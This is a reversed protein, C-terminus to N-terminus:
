NSFYGAAGALGLVILAVLLYVLWSRKRPEPETVDATNTDVSIATPADHVREPDFISDARAVVTPDFALPAFTDTETSAASIPTGQADIRPLSDCSPTYFATQAVLLGEDTPVKDLTVDSTDTGLLAPSSAAHPHSAGLPSPGGQPPALQPEDRQVFHMTRADEQDRAAIEDLEPDIGEPPSPIELSTVEGSDLSRARHIVTETESPHATIPSLVNEPLEFTKSSALGQQLTQAQQSAHQAQQHPDTTMATDRASPPEDISVEDTSFDEASIAANSLLDTTERRLGTAPASRNTAGHPQEGSDIGGQLRRAVSEIEFEDALFPDLDSEPENKKWGARTQSPASESARVFGTRASESARVFGTRPDSIAAPRGAPTFASNAKPPRKQSRHKDARQPTLARREASLESAFHREVLEALKTPSVLMRQDMQFELLDDLMDSVRAYRDEPRWATARRYIRALGAPYSPDIEQPQKLLGHAAAELLQADTGDGFASRALTIEFLLLGLAYIDCRQDVPLGRAQEPSLYGFKGKLVGARTAQRSAQHAKAIGFDAIKVAGATSILINAPNIDRHVLRLPEGDPGTARHAFDLGECVNCLVHLALPLELPKRHRDLLEGLDKGPVYEMAMFLVGSEEGLEYLHVINSHDLLGALRGEDLFMEVFDQDIALEERLCKVVVQKSFGAVGTRQALYLEGMGGTALHSLLTYNGFRQPQMLASPKTELDHNAAGNYHFDRHYSM